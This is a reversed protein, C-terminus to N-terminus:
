GTSGSLRNVLKKKCGYLAYRASENAIFILPVDITNLHKYPLNGFIRLPKTM